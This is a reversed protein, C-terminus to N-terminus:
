EGTVCGRGATQSTVSPRDGGKNIVDSGDGGSEEDGNNSNGDGATTVMYSKLYRSTSTGFDFGFDFHFDSIASRQRDDSDTGHYVLLPRSSLIEM